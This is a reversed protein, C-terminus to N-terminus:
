KYKCHLHLIRCQSVYMQRIPSIQSLTRAAPPSSYVATGYWRFSGRRACRAGSKSMMRTDTPSAVARVGNPLVRLAQISDHEATM